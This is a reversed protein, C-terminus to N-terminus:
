KAGGEGPNADASPAMLPLFLSVKTGQGPTSDIELQGGHAEVIRQVIPLGLGTGSPRTTYFPDTARALVQEDMGHGQDIIDIRVFPEEGRTAEGVAIEVMGGDPMAQFANSVLNDFVLRLLNADAEVSKLHPQDPISIQLRHKDELRGEARRALESISVSSRKIIVPRAFRLLDTVLRNLRATEEDLISLLTSRDEAGITPRRLGAAANMIIALPNRVEHAIAAALEGVVALQKKDRLERQLRDVATQASALEDLCSSLRVETARAAMVLTRYRLVMVAMLLVSCGLAAHSLVASSAHHRGIVADFACGAAFSILGLVTLHRLVPPMDQKRWVFVAAAVVVACLYILFSPLCWEALAGQVAARTGGISTSSAFPHAYGLLLQWLVGVIASFWGLARLASHRLFWALGFVILCVALMTGVSFAMAVARPPHGPHGSIEALAWSSAAFGACGIGLGLWEARRYEILYAACFLSGLVLQSATEAIVIGSCYAQEM